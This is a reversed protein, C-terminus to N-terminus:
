VASPAVLGAETSFSAAVRDSFGAVNGARVRRYYTTGDALGSIQATTETLTAQDYVPATFDSAASVQLHYVTALTSRGWSLAVPRALGTAGDAPGALAM